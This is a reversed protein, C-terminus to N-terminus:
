HYQSSRSWRVRAMVVSLGSFIQCVPPSCLGMVRKGSSNRGSFEIGLVGEKFFTEEPLVDRQLTGNALMVDRLNLGAYYVSCTETELQQALNSGLNGNHHGTKLPSDFWRLSSVDGATLLDAFVCESPRELQRAATLFFYIYGPIFLYYHLFTITVM